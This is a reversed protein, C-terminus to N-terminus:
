VSKPDLSVAVLEAPIKRHMPNAFRPTAYKDCSKVLFGARLPASRAHSKADAHFGRSPLRVRMM